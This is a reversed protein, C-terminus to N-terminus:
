ESIFIEFIDFFEFVKAASECVCGVESGFDGGADLFGRGVEVLVGSGQVTTFVDGQFVFDVNESGCCDGCEQVPRFGPGRCFFVDAAKFDCLVLPNPIAEADTEFCVSVDGVAFEAFFAFEGFDFGEDAAVSKSPDPVESAHGIGAEGLFCQTRAEISFARRTAAAHRPALNDFFIDGFKLPHRPLRPHLNRFVSLTPTFKNM